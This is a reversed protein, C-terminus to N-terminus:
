SNLPTQTSNLGLDAMMAMLVMMTLSYPTIKLLSALKKAKLSVKPRALAKTTLRSSKLAIL